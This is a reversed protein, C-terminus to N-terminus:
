KVRFCYSIIAAVIISITTVSGLLFSQTIFYYEFEPDFCIRIIELVPSTFMLYSVIELFLSTIIFI